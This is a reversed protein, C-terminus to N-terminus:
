ERASLAQRIEAVEGTAFAPTPEGSPPATGTRAAAALATLGASLSDGEGGTMPPDTRFTQVHWCAALM